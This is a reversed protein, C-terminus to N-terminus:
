VTRPPKRKPGRARGKTPHVLADGEPRASELSKADNEAAPRLLKALKPDVAQTTPLVAVPINNTPLLAPSKIQHGRNKFKKVFLIAEEEESKAHQLKQDQVRGEGEKTHEKGNRSKMLELRALAEPMSIKRAPKPPAKSLSSLKSVAEPLSSKMVPKPPAKTLNGRKNLAEPMSPKREPKPPPKALSNRKGIIEPESAKRATVAPTRRLAQLQEVAPKKEENTTKRTKPIRLSLDPINGTGTQSKSSTETQKESTRLKLKLENLALTPEEASIRGPSHKRPPPLELPKGLVETKSSEGKLASTVFSQSPREPKEPAAKLNKRSHSTTASLKNNQASSLPTENVRFGGALKPNYDLKSPSTATVKNKQLSTLYSSGNSESPPQGLTGLTSKPHSPERVSSPIDIIEDSATPLLRPRPPKVPAAKNPTTFKALDDMQKRAPLPPPTTSDKASYDSSNYEAHKTLRTSPPSPPSPPPSPARAARAKGRSPYQRTGEKPLQPSPDILGQKLQTLLLYDEESITYQRGSDRFDFRSISFDAAVDDSRSGAYKDARIPSNSYNSNRKPSFSKEYNYASRYAMESARGPSFTASKDESGYYEGNLLKRSIELDQPRYKSSYKVDNNNTKKSSNREYDLEQVRALYKELEPDREARRPSHM